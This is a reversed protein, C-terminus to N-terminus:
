IRRSTWKRDYSKALSISSVMIVFVMTILIVPKSYFYALIIVLISLLIILKFWIRGQILEDRCLWAIWFGVPISLLLSISIILWGLM